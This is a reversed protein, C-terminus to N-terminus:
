NPKVVRMSNLEENGKPQHWNDKTLDIDVYLNNNQYYNGRYNVWCHYVVHENPGPLNSSEFDQSSLGYLTDPETGSDVKPTGKNLHSLDLFTNCLYIKGIGGGLWTNGSQNSAFFVVNLQSNQSCGAAVACM